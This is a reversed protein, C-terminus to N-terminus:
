TEELVKKIKREYKLPTIYQGTMQMGLILCFSVQVGWFM